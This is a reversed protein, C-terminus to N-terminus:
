WGGTRQAAMLPLAARCMLFVGRSNVAFVNEWDDADVADTRMNTKGTIGASNVVVHLGGLEATRAVARSVSARDRVDIAIPIVKSSCQSSIKSAAATAATEDFDLIAVSAGERALRSAVAFGIGRAAGTVAAIQGAFRGPIISM